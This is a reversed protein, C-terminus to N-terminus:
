SLGAVGGDPMVVNDPTWPVGPPAKATGGLSWFSPPLGDQSESPAEMWPERPAWETMPPEPPPAAMAMAHVDWPPAELPPAPPPAPAWSHEVAQPVPAWSPCSAPTPASAWSHEVAQPVPAQACTWSHEVAQPVPAQAPAWSHDVAQPVPAQAPAWSHEVPQPVPAPAPAWTHEVAQPAPAPARAWSPTSAPTPAPAWSSTSAPTPASAWSHEVPPPPASVHAAVWSNDVGPPPPAPAPAWSHEAPPPVPTPAPAPAPAWSHENGSAQWSSEAHWTESQSANATADTVEAVVVPQADSFNSTRPKREEDDRDRSRSRRKERSKDDRSKDDRSKDHSRSRKRERSRSRARREEKEGDNKEREDKRDRRDDRRDRDRDRDRDRRDGDRRERDRRDRDDRKDRDDRRDRDDRKDRDKRDRSRSRRGRSRERSRHKETKWSKEPETKEPEGVDEGNQIKTLLWSMIDAPRNAGHLHRSMQDIDKKKDPRRALATTLDLITRQDLDYKSALKEVDVDLNSKGEQLERIKTFLRFTPVPAANLAEWVSKVDEDFTNPRSKLVDNLNSTIGENLSFHAAIEEVKPHLNGRASSPFGDLVPPGEVTTHPGEPVAQSRSEPPQVCQQLGPEWAKEAKEWSGEEWKKGWAGDGDNSAQANANANTNEWSSWQNGKSWEEPGWGGGECGGKM